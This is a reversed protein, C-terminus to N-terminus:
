NTVLEYTDPKVSSLVPSPTGSYLVTLRHMARTCAVYLLKIDDDTRQYVEASCDAIVVGDFELGKALHVPMVFISAAYDEALDTILQVTTDPLEAALEAHTLAATAVTKTLVAVTKCGNKKLKLIQDALVRPLEKPKLNELVVPKATSRLVPEAPIFRGHPAAAIIENAFHMIEIASRYSQTLQQMQKPEKAFIVDTLEAWSRISRYAYIGQAMDGVITFSKEAALLKLIQYQFVSYDQAEDVVIHLPRVYDKIGFVKSALYILPALDEMAPEWHGQFQKQFVAAYETAREATLSGESWEAAQEPFSFVEQYLAALQWKPWNKLYSKVAAAPTKKLRAVAQDRFDYARGIKWQREGGEPLSARLRMVEQECRAKARVTMEEAKQKVRRLCFQRVMNFRAMLPLYYCEKKQYADIESRLVAPEGELLLDGEPILRDELYRVYGDLLRQMGLSCKFGILRTEPDSETLIAAPALKPQIPIEPPLLLRALEPFTTQNVETVGLEPLVESIYNLFLKNPGVILIREAPLVDQYTYILYALRHLAVTTKGSGAVGQVILVQDKAARIIENQEAQITAVVEKLRQDAGSELVAQLLEDQVSLTRDFIHQLVSHDIVFQRKLLLEGHVDRWARSLRDPAKFSARGVQANYYLNAIPARWDVILEQGDHVTGLRGLYLDDVEDRRDERFQMRAFYPKEIAYPLALLKRRVGQLLAGQSVLDPNYEGGSTRLLTDVIEKLETYQVKTVDLDAALIAVTRELRQREEDFEHHLRAEVICPVELRKSDYRIMYRIIHDSCIIMAFEM